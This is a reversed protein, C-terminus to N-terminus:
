SSPRGVAEARESVLPRRPDIVAWCAAAVLFALMYTVFVSDYGALMAAKKDAAALGGAAVGTAAAKALISGEVLTGTLWGNLASGLTGITNMCAATVAAHGRGLDQCSAWAAGLTVDISFAALSILVCFSYIGAARSAGWWCAAGCLMAAVGLVRRALRRDGLRRSLANIAPGGLFCGTAGFWLPAGKAIAGLTDGAGVGFREEVYTPLYTFNFAWAYNALLYMLCLAWLVPSSALAKWPIAGHSGAAGRASAPRDRFGITFAVAWAAGIAGFILFAARWSVLGGAGASGGVLFAWLLPTLGGALRGSMFVIGQASEWRAPPIREHLARTINPYAGAEGAGFLFRLAILSGVGGLVVPGVRLGILGTMATFASWWLVIRTLMVKAGLRDGLAGAPIEFAAYAIAFATIAWKLRSVDDLGLEAAIPKLAMGFCARDLYTIMSLSAVFALVRASERGWGPETAGDVEAATAM